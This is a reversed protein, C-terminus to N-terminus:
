VIEDCDNPTQQIRHLHLHERAFTIQLEYLQRLVYARHCLNCYHKICSSTPIAPARGRILHHVEQIQTYIM